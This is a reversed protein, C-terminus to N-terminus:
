KRLELIELDTKQLEKEYFSGQIEEAMFDLPRYTIPKTAQM